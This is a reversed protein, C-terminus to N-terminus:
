SASCTRNRARLYAQVALGAEFKYREFCRMFLDITLDKLVHQEMDFNVFVGHESASQLIPGLSEILEAIVRDHAIPDVKAALSSIKVSVNTRPIPGLHDTEILKNAPWNNVASPLKHILDLYRVRSADAEARSICAEGLLDVSFGIGTDWRKRLMPLASEADVGAIFRKATATIQSAVTKALTGKMMGGAKLGLALGHPLKVGPQSLYDMLHQHILDPTSLVPFVDTFRFLQARFAQDAMAWDMLKDSISPGPAARAAALLDKGIRLAM